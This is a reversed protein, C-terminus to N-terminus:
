QDEQSSDKQELRGGSMSIDRQASFLFKSGVPCAPWSGWQAHVCSGKWIILDSRCSCWYHGRFLWKRMAGAWELRFRTPQDNTLLWILWMSASQRIWRLALCTIHKWWWLGSAERLSVHSIQTRLSLELWSRRFILSCIETWRCFM